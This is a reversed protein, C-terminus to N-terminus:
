CWAVVVAALRHVSLLLLLFFAGVTISHKEILHNLDLLWSELTRGSYKEGFTFYILDREAQSASMMQQVAKLSKDGGFATSLLLTPLLLPHHPSPFLGGCGWNGTALPHEPVLNSPDWCACYM